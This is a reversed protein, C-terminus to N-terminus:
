ESALITMQWETNNVSSWPLPNGWMDLLTIDVSDIAQNPSWQSWNPIPWKKTFIMATTGVSNPDQFSNAQSTLTYTDTLYIRGIVGLPAQQNSNTDKTEKYNTLKKSVIDVYDTPLFNPVGTTQADFTLYPSGSGLQFNAPVAGIMRYFRLAQAKRAQGFNFPNFIPDYPSLFALTDISNSLITFGTQSRSTGTVTAGNTPPSVTILAANASAVAFTIRLQIQMQAALQTPTYYGAPIQVLSYRSVTTTNNTYGVFFEDNYGAIVTPMRLLLQMETIAVRNFYGYLLARKTQIQCNDTASTPVTFTQPVITALQVTTQTNNGISPYRDLSSLHLEASMPYRFARSIKEPDDLTFRFNGEGVDM